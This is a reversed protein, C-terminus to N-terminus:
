ADAVGQSGDRAFAEEQLLIAADRAATTPNKHDWVLEGTVSLIPPALNFGALPVSLKECWDILRKSVQDRTLAALAMADLDAIADAISERTSTVEAVNTVLITERQGFINRQSRYGSVAIKNRVNDALQDFAFRFDALRSDAGDRLEREIELCQTTSSTEIALAAAAMAAYKLRAAILERSVSDVHAVAAACNKGAIAIAAKHSGPIAGLKAILERRKEIDRAQEREDVGKVEPLALVKELQAKGEPSLKLDRILDAIKM